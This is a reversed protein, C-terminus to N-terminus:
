VTFTTINRVKISLEAEKLGKRCVRIKRKQSSVQLETRM